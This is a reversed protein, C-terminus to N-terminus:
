LWQCIQSSFNMWIFISMNLFSYFFCLFTAGFLLSFLLAWQVYQVCYSQLVLGSCAHSHSCMEALHKKKRTNKRCIKIVPTPAVMYLVTAEGNLHLTNEMTPKFLVLVLFLKARSPVSNDITHSLGRDRDGPMLIHLLCKYCFFLFMPQFTYM